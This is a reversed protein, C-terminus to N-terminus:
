VLGEMQGFFEFIINHERIEISVLIVNIRLRWFCSLNAPLSGKKFIESDGINVVGHKNEVLFVELLM